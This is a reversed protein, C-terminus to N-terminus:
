IKAYLQTKQKTISTGCVSLIMTEYKSIYVLHQLSKQVLFRIEQEQHPGVVNLKNCIATNGKLFHVM